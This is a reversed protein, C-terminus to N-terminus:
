SSGKPYKTKVQQIAEKWVEYGGHYLMDFQEALTPYEKARKRQYEKAEYDAQLREIEAEVEEKTPKSQDEDLWELDEYDSSRLVWQAGPRLSTLAKVIM